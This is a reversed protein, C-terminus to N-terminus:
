NIAIARKHLWRKLGSLLFPSAILLVFISEGLGPKLTASSSETTAVTQPAVSSETNSTEIQTTQPVTKVTAKPVPNSETVPQSQSSDVGPTKETTIKTPQPPKKSDVSQQQQHSHGSHALLM